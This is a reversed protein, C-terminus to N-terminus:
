NILLKKINFLSIIKTVMPTLVVIAILILLPILFFFMFPDLGANTQSTVNDVTFSLDDRIKNFVEENFNTKVANKVVNDITLTQKITGGSGKNGCDIVMNSANVIQTQDANITNSIANNVTDTIKRSLDRDLITNSTTNNVSVNTQFLNLDENQQEVMNKVETEATTELENEFELKKTDDLNNYFENNYTQYQSFVFGGPCNLLINGSFDVSQFQSGSIDNVVSKNHESLFRLSADLFSKRVVEQNNTSVNTGM